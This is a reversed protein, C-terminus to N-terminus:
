KKEDKHQIYYERLENLCRRDKHHYHGTSLTFDVLSQFPFDLGSKKITILLERLDTTLKFFKIKKM